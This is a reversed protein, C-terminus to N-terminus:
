KGQEECWDFCTSSHHTSGRWGGAGDTFAHFNISSTDIGAKKFKRISMQIAEVCDKASHNSKDVDLCFYKNM